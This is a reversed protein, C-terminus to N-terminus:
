GPSGAHVGVLFPQRSRACSCKANRLGGSFALFAPWIPSKMFPGSAFKAFSSVGLYAQGVLRLVRRFGELGQM